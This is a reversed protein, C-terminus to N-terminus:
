LHNIAGTSAGTFTITRHALNDSRCVPGQVAPKPQITVLQICLNSERWSRRGLLTRVRSGAHRTCVLRGHSGGQRTPDHPNMDTPIQVLDGCQYM